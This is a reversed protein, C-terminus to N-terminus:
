SARAYVRWVQDAEFDTSQVDPYIRRCQALITGRIEELDWWVLRRADGAWVILGAEAAAADIQRITLRPENFASRFVRMAEAREWGRYTALYEDIDAPSLRVRGRPFDLTCYEHGGTESFFPNFCHFMLGEARLWRAM